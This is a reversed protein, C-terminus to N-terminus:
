RPLPIVGLKALASTVVEMPLGVVNNYSGEFRDVFAGAGGQIAYAGARDMPEGSAVYSSIDEPTLTRFTVATVEVGEDLVDGGRSLAWGTMVEHSTGNLRGLMEIAEAAGEPKGMLVGKHVVVTDAGLTIADPSAFSQSKARAIRAAYALPAEDPLPTEDVGAPVTEFRYGAAGLLDRRRPSGSALVFRVM